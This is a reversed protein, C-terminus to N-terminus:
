QQDATNELDLANGVIQQGASVGAVIEIQNNPLTVGTKVLVRKFNGSGLPEFVYSRDHLQLVAGAPVATEQQPHSGELTATAFMGLRLLNQPNQVQIRVKATRLTPDLQAGIDSITGSFTKGPYANIRIDAHQGVHVGALDNEYVDCIVWVHSLDAITLSGTAGAYTIGAAGAATVNQAIIVGSAPAYIKVTEGPHKRDVGLIKLQQEAATLDAKSDDEGDQAAELQSKAIAGKNYLLVDRDRTVSTLHEDNVAKLYADFATSVDPSQVEMVLEGKHVTDGLGVHLAVVRGNALSLVPIERSVDPNVSGTVQLASRVEQSSAQVIPFREPGDIHVTDAGGTEVVQVSSPPAEASPSGAEHKCGVVTLLLLLSPAALRSLYSSRQRLAERDQQEKLAINM